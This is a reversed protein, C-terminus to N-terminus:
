SVLLIKHMLCHSNCPFITSLKIPLPSETNSKARSSSKCVQVFKGVRGYDM